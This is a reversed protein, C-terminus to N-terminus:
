ERRSFKNVSDPTQIEPNKNMQNRKLVIDRLIEPPDGDTESEVSLVHYAALAVASDYDFGEAGGEMAICEGDTSQAIFAWGHTERDGIANAIISLPDAPGDNM